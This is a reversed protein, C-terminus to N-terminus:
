GVIKKIIPSTVGFFSILAVVLCGYWWVGIPRAYQTMGIYFMVIFSVFWVFLLLDVTWNLTKGRKRLTHYAVYGGAASQGLLCLLLGAINTSM